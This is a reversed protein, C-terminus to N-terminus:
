PYAELIAALSEIVQDLAEKETKARIAITSAGAKPEYYKAAGTIIPFAHTKTSNELVPRIKITLEFQDARGSADELVRIRNTPELQIRLTGNTKSDTTPHDPIALLSRLRDKIQQALVPNDEAGAGEVKITVNAWQQGLQQTDGSFRYGCANLTLALLLLPLTHFLRNM